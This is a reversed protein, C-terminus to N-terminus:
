DHREHQRGDTRRTRRSLHGHRGGTVKDALRESIAFSMWYDKSSPANM